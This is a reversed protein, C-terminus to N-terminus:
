ADDVFRRPERGLGALGDDGARATVVAAAPAHHVRVHAVALDDLDARIRALPRGLHRREMRAHAPETLELAHVMRITQTMRQSPRPRASGALELRDAPVLREVLDRPLHPADAISVPGRRDEIARARAVSRHQVVAGDDLTEEVLEAAARVEPRVEGGLRFDERYPLRESLLRVVLAAPALRDVVDVRPEDD